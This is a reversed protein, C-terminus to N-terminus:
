TNRERDRRKMRLFAALCGGAYGFASALLWHGTSQFTSYHTALSNVWNNSNGAAGPFQSTTIYQGSVVLSIDGSFDVPQNSYLLTPSSRDELAKQELLVLGKTTILAAGIHDSTWPGFVVALYGASFLWWGSAFARPRGPHLTGRLLLGTMGTLTATVIISHWWVGTNALAACAVCIIAILILLTRLSFKLRM